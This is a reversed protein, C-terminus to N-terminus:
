GCGTTSESGLSLLFSSQGELQQLQARSQEQDADKKQVRAQSPTRFTKDCFGCKEPKEGTHIRWHLALDSACNFWKKCDTCQASKKKPLQSRREERAHDADKKQVAIM